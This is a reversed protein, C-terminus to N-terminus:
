EDPWMEQLTCGFFKLLKKVTSLTADCGQEIEVVTSECIQAGEAVDRLTLNWHRRIRSLGCLHRHRGRGKLYQAARSKRPTETKNISMLEAPSQMLWEQEGEMPEDVDAPTMCEAHLGKNEEWSDTEIKGGCWACKM